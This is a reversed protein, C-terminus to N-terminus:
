ELDSKIQNILEQNNNVFGRIWRKPGDLSDPLGYSFAELCKMNTKLISLTNQIEYLEAETITVDQSDM